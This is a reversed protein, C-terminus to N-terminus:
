GKQRAFYKVFVSDEYDYTYYNYALDDRVSGDRRVYKELSEGPYRSSGDVSVLPAGTYSADYPHLIIYIPFWAALALLLVLIAARGTRGRRVFAFLARLVLVMLVFMAPLSARQCLDNWMGVRWFPLFLLVANAVYYLPTKEYERFIVVSYCLFTTIFILYLAMKDKGIWSLGMGAMEPKESFINGSLYFFLVLMTGAACLNPISFARKICKWPDKETVVRWGFVGLMLLAIGLLGFVTHILLPAALFLYHESKEESDVFLATLIWPVITQQFAWKLQFLHNPYAIRVADYLGQGPWAVTGFLMFVLIAVIQKKATCTGLLRLLLLAALCMGIWNNCLMVIEAARFSHFIKGFLAPILYMGVYYTLMANEEGNHYYVPWDRRILDNLIANHKEWDLAQAFFAGSGTILLWVLMSVGLFVLVSKKVRVPERDPQRDLDRKYRYLAALSLAIAALAWYWRLWGPLFIFVAAWSYCVAAFTLKKSNVDM